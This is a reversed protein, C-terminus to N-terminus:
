DGAWIDGLRFGKPFPDRADLFVEALQTVYATGQISPVV